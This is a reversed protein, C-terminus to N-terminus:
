LSAKMLAVTVAYRFRYLSYTAGSVADIDMMNQTRLLEEEYIPYAVAPTTGTVSMEECYVEDEEKGMGDKHIENYDVEVIRGEEVKLTVEHKYDFADYPSAGTFTGDKLGAPSVPLNYYDILQNFQTDVKPIPSTEIVFHLSVMASKFYKDEAQFEKIEDLSDKPPGCSTILILAFVLSIFISYMRSGDMTFQKTRM